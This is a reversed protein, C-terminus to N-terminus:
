QWFWRAPFRSFSAYMREYTNVRVCSENEDIDKPNTHTYSLWNLFVAENGGEFCVHRDKMM